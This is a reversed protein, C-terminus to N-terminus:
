GAPGSMPATHNSYGDAESRDHINIIKGTDDDIYVDTDDLIGSDNDVFSESVMGEIDFELEVDENVQVALYFTM